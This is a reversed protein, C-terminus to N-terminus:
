IDAFNKEGKKDSTKHCILKHKNAMLFDIKNHALEKKCLDAGSGWWATMTAAATTADDGSGGNIGDGGPGGYLHDNGGNGSMM